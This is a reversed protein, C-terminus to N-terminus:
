ERRGPARVFMLAVFAIVSLLFIYLYPLGRWVGGAGMGKDFLWALVPAGVFSGGVEAMAILGYLRSTYKAEVYHSVTARALPSDAAGLTGVVLGAFFVGVNGCFAEVLAGVAILATSTKTLVLDKGFGTYRRRTILMSSVTPLVALLALNLLGLPSLLLTTDALKWGFNTSIYQALMGIYAHFRANQFFFTVLVLPINPNRLMSLSAVLEAVGERLQHAM